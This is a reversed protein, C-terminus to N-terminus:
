LLFEDAEKANNYYDLIIQEVKSKQKHERGILLSIQNIYNLYYSPNEKILKMSELVENVNKVKTKFYYKLTNDSSTFSKKMTVIEDTIYDKLVGNEIYAYYGLTVVKGTNTLFTFTGNSKHKDDYFVKYYEKM